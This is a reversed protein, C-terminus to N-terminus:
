KRLRSPLWVVRAVADMMGSGECVPCQCTESEKTEQSDRYFYGKGGCYRCTFNNCYIDEPTFISTDPPTLEIVRRQTSM